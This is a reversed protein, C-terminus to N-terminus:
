HHLDDWPREVGTIEKSITEESTFVIDICDMVSFSDIEYIPVVDNDLNKSPVFIM